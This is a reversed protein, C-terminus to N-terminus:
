HHYAVACYYDSWCSEYHQGKVEDHQLITYCFYDMMCWDDHKTSHGDFTTRGVFTTRGGAVADMEAGDLEQAAAWAQELEELSLEYGLEAAVMQIAEGDNAVRTVGKLAEEFRQRLAEDAKLAAEFERVTVKAM